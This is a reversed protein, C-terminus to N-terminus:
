KRLMQIVARLIFSSFCVSFICYVEHVVNVAVYLELGVWNNDYTSVTSKGAVIFKLVNQILCFSM